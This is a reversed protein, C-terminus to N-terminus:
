SLLETLPTGSAPKLTFDAMLDSGHEGQFGTYQTVFASGSYMPNSLGPSSTKSARYRFSVPTRGVKANHLTYHVSGPVFDQLMKGTIQWQELGPTICAVSDGHADHALEVVSEAVTFERCHDSLDIGAIEIFGDRFTGFKGM